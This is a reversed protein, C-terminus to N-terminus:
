CNSLFLYIFLVIKETYLIVKLCYNMKNRKYKMVYIHTNLFFNVKKLTEDEVSHFWM